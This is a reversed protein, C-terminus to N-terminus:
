ATALRLRAIQHPTHSRTPSARSPHLLPSLAMPRPFFGPGIGRIAALPSDFATQQCLAMSHRDCYHNLSGVAMVHFQHARGDFTDNDLTGLWGPLIWLAHTQIFPIVVILDIRGQQFEAKRSMHSRERFLSLGNFPFSATKARRQTTSRACEQSLRKRRRSTRQSFFGTSAVQPMRRGANAQSFEENHSKGIGWLFLVMELM